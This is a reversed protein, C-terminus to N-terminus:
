ILSTKTGTLIISPYQFWIEDGDLYAGVGLEDKGIDAEYINRIEKIQTPNMTTKIQTSLRMPLFFMRTRIDKLNLNRAMEVFEDTTLASVHSPDKLTEVHDFAQRKEQPLAVDVVMVAGGNSCVRVMDKLVQTPQPFHHFAYRCIVLSYSADLFPLPFVNGIRWSVNQLGRERELQKAREIMAPTIDIGMAHKIRPALACTVLGGGCAVDLLTDKSTINLMDLMMRLVEDHGPMISSAVAKKTFEEVISRQQGDQQKM